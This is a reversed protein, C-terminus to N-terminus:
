KVTINSVYMRDGQHSVTFCDLWALFERFIYKHRIMLIEHFDMWGNKWLMVLLCPDQFYFFRDRIWPTLRLMGFINWIKGQRMDLRELFKMFIWEDTKGYHQECVHIEKFFYLFFGQICPTSCVMGLTELNNRTDEDVYGSFKLFIQGHTKGYHQECVFLSNRPVQHVWFGSYTHTGVKSLNPDMGSPSCEYSWNLVRCRQQIWGSSGITWTSM